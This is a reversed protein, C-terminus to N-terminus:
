YNEAFRHMPKIMDFDYQVYKKQNKDYLKWVKGDYRPEYRSSVRAVKKLQELKEITLNNAPVIMRTSSNYLYTKDQFRHYVVDSAAWARFQSDQYSAWKGTVLDYIGSRDDSEVVLFGEGIYELRKANPFSWENRNINYLGYGGNTDDWPLWSTPTYYETRGGGASDGYSSFLIYDDDLCDELQSSIVEMEYCGGHEMIVRHDKLSYVGRSEGEFGGGYVIYDGVKDVWDAWACQRTIKTGTKYNVV